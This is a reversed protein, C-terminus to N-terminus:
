AGKSKSFCPLRPRNIRFTSFNQFKLIKFQANKERVMHDLSPASGYPDTNSIKSYKNSDYSDQLLDPSDCSKHEKKHLM